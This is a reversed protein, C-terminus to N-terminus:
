RTFLMKSTAKFDGAEIRVFYVGSGVAQGAYDDGAWVISHRGAPFTRDALTRVQRGQADFVELLVESAMPLDFGISTGRSFPNPRNPKLAFSKPVAAAGTAEDVGSGVYLWEIELHTCAPNVIGGVCYHTSRWRLDSGQHALTLWPGGPLLEVWNTGGDASVEWRISDTQTTSLRV